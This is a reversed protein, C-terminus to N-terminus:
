LDYRAGVILSYGLEDGAGAFREGNVWECAGELDFSVRGLKYDVGLSPRVTLLNDRDQFTRYSIEFRPNLRLRLRALLPIRASLLLAYRDTARGDTYRVSLAGVDGERLLGSGVLQTFYSFELGSGAFERGSELDELGTVPDAFELESVTVDGSLQWRDSMQHTAGLTLLKSRGTRAKALAKIDGESLADRLDDVSDVTEGILANQLTMVPSNRYDVFLNMTTTEGLRWNGTLLATNLSRFYIDYDILAALYRGPAFYRLEGGIAMRDTLGENTQHVAYIQADLAAFLGKADLSLGHVRRGTDVDHSARFEVPFGAVGSASWHEGLAYTVLAGDMRGIVGRSNGSQRGFTGSLPGALQDIEIFLSSIRREDDGRDNVLFDFLYSGNLEARIGYKDTYARLATFVGNYLSSHTVAYGLPGTSRVDRRYSTSLSGFIDSRVRRRANAARLKQKSQKRATLMADLRQRVRVAGEGDPYRELYDQYVAKAHALQGKRERALGLLERAEASRAHEPFTLVKTFAAVARPYDAATMADRGRRMLAAIKAPDAATLQRPVPKQPPQGRSSSPSASPRPSPTPHGVSESGQTKPDRIRIVISRLDRGGEVDFEVLRSFRVEVLPRESEDGEYIVEQIPSEVGGRPQLSERELGALTDGPGTTVPDLEIQISTGRHAPGHRVYRAPVGLRVVLSAGEPSTRM